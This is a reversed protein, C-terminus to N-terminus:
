MTPERAHCSFDRSRLGVAVTLAQGVVDLHAGYPLGRVHYPLPHLWRMFPLPAFSPLRVLATVLVLLAFMRSATWPLLVLAKPTTEATTGRSAQTNALTRSPM